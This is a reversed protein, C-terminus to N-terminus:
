FPKKDDSFIASVIEINNAMYFIFTLFMKYVYIKNLYM